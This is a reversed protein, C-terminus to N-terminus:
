RATTCNLPKNQYVYCSTREDLQEITTQQQWTQTPTGPTSVLFVFCMLMVGLLLGCLIGPTFGDDGYM